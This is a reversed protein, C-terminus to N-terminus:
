EEGGKMWWALALIIAFYIYGMILPPLFILKLIRSIM